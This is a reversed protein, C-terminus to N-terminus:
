LAEFSVIIGHRKLADAAFRLADARFRMQATSCNDPILMPTVDHYCM